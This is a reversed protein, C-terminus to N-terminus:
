AVIQSSMGILMQQISVPYLPVTQQNCFIFEFLIQECVIALHQRKTYSAFIRGIKYWGILPVILLDNTPRFIEAQLDNVERWAGARSGVIGIRLHTFAVSAGRLDIIRNEIELLAVRM